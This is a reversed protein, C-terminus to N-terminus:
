LSNSSKQGTQTPEGLIQDFARRMIWAKEDDSYDGHSKDIAEKLVKKIQPCKVSYEYLIKYGAWEYVRYCAAPSGNNYVPAGISIAESIIKEIEKGPPCTKTLTDKLTTIQQINYIQLRASQCLGHFGFLIIALSLIIFRYSNKTTM